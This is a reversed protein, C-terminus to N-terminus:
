RNLFISLKEGINSDYFNNFTMKNVNTSKKFSGREKKRSKHSVLTVFHTNSLLTSYDM